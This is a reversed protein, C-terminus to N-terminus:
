QGTTMSSAQMEKIYNAAPLLIAPVRQTGASADPTPCLCAYIGWGAIVQM